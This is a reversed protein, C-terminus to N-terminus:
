GRSWSVAMGSFIPVALLNDRSYYVSVAPKLLENMYFSRIMDSDNFLIPDTFSLVAAAQRIDGALKRNNRRNLLNFLAVGPGSIGPIWNISWLPTPPYLNWLGESIRPMNLGNKRMEMRVKMWPEKRYRYRTIQDVPPNVYLVRNHRALEMAINKCNSGIRIDWAQLGVVIIDRNRIM